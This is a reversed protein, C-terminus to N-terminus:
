FYNILLTLKSCVKSPEENELKLVLEKVLSQIVELCHGLSDQDQIVPPLSVTVLQFKCCFENVENKFYDKVEETSPCVDPYM